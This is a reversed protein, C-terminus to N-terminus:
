TIATPAPAEYVRPPLHPASGPSPGYIAIGGDHLVSRAAVIATEEDMFDDDVLEALARGVCHKAALVTGYTEEVTSCDGGWSIRDAQPVIQLWEKLTAVAVESSLQPLWTLNLRVNPYNHALAAPEHIWPFGGHFLDFVLGPHERIVGELLLPNSSDLRAIGTHVQIVLELDKARDLLFRLLYDGFLLRDADSARDPPTGFVRLADARRGPGVFLTREYALASKLSRCGAAVNALLIRDVLEELQALSRVDIDFHASWDRILNSREFDSADPHYAVLTSNIRFSPRFRREPVTYTGAAWYPDWICADVRARDLVTGIHDPAAARRPVERLLIKWSRETLDPDPLDYLDRLGRMLWRYYSTFRVRGVMRAASAWEDTLALSFTSGESNPSGDPARLCRMVYSEAILRAPGFPQLLAIPKIHDHTSYVPCAEIAQALRSVRGAM